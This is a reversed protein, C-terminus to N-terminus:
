HREEYLLFHLWFRLKWQSLLYRIEELLDFLLIIQCSLARSVLLFFFLGLCESTKSGTIAYSVGLCILKITTVLGELELSKICGDQQKQLHKWLLPFGCKHLSATLWMPLHLSCNLHAFIDETLWPFIGLPIESSSMLFGQLELIQTWDVCLIEERLRGQNPPWKLILLFWNKGHLGTQLM